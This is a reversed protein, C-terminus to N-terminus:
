FSRVVRTWPETKPDLGNYAFIILGEVPRQLHELQAAAM